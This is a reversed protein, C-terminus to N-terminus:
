FSASMQVRVTHIAPARAPTRGDYNVSVNLNRSLSYQGQLGWLLSTGRGRGETLEFQAQGVAAESLVIRALEANASVRLRRPRTWTLELPLRYLNAQRNRLRDKKRAYVGTVTVNLSRSPRYSARPRIRVTQINYSRAQSFAQSRVQNREITGSIGVGWTSTPRLQSDLRWRNLFQRETGAARETLGREQRWTLDLGYGRHTPFLEFQQELRLSGDLTKGPQRFRDLHLAYIETPSGTRSKEQIDVKTTTSIRSLWRKWWTTETQFLRRPQLRLRTRAQVDVVSELTDSPVFRRVYTGENPTTEPVFEDIQQVGDNNRDRWVYRGREPKTEVYVERLIPARETSADYYARVSLARDLPNAEGTLQMLLSETDRRKQRRRFYDTFRRSRYGGQITVRYPKSPTYSIKTRATVAESTPRFSGNAPEEETRYEITGAAQVPGNEFSVGPRLELFQFSDDSLSDTNLAEQRRREREIEFRPELAGEFFPYRLHGLRRTWQGEVQAVRDRSSISVSRMRVQPWGEERLVIEEKRRWARFASGVTLQGLGAEIRSAEGWGLRVRGQDLTEAGRDRFRNPLDGGQRSLNWRRGYEIPRTRDFTTFHRGRRRRTIQGSLTGIRTEGMSLRTPELEVGVEYAQGHDDESDLPSFRNQDNLSRAWEGSVSLGPLPKLSATLDVLRRKSPAPLPQIPRYAGEGPGVYEYVIGNVEEAGRKYEGDGSGVRTFRVRFVPTGVPPASELAVFITDRTGNPTTIPEKRYQVFPAEPDYEVRRAGSRVARDDGARVLRLSDQRSLDFASAFDDGDAQRVVTAGVALRSEGEENAWARATARGGVLTRTFRTTSYQFEVTIRRDETILHNATFTIEAQSYDIVYDETRGRTMRTGDLYVQESGAIVVIAEEGNQGRLRYPGQVGDRPEIDQSRYQGRTVAGFAKTEGGTLGVREGLGKSRVAVGQVKQTFRGFTSGGLSVDVDGLRASGQPAEVGLFVRDFDKLRQTTGEPQIPTNEDTLYAQVFVSDAVEGQLQMQLGSELTVDRNTGGVFGRSISGSRELNLGKFPDFGSADGATREGGIKASSDTLARIRPGRGRYPDEFAFPYTRYTVFLSDYRGLLDKRHIWLHGERADLQYDSTDVRNPGLWIRESGPLVFPELQYPQPQFTDVTDRHRGLNKLVLTTDQAWVKGTVPFLVLLAIGTRLLVPVVPSRLRHRM